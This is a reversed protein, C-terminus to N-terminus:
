KKLDDEVAKRFEAVLSKKKEELLEGNIKLAGNEGIAHMLALVNANADIALNLAAKIAKENSMRRVVM